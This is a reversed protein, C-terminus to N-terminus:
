RQMNNKMACLFGRKLVGKELHKKSILIAELVKIALFRRKLTGAQHEMHSTQCLINLYKQSLYPHAASFGNRSLCLATFLHNWQCKGESAECDRPLGSRAFENWLKSKNPPNPLSELHKCPIPLAKHHQKTVRRKANLVRLTCLGSQRSTTCRTRRAM